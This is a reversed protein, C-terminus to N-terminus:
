AGGDACTQIWRLLDCEQENMEGRITKPNYVASEQDALGVSMGLDERGQRGGSCFSSFGDSSGLGVGSYRPALLIPWSVSLCYTM